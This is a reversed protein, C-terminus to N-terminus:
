TIRLTLDYDQAGELGERLMGVERVLSTRYVGLHSTYMFSMLTDPSWEPKFHPFHRNGGGEDIKDEDSYIFDLEPEENLKKAVEYLANPAITDDCDMFAVFEGEAVELASNTAKSIHGNETRYVIKIKDQNEYEKLVEKTEEWTSADDALCLQWNTYTQGTVSKICERLMGAKVNYVPVVVSILPNHELKTVKYCDKENKKIWKHYAMHPQEPRKFKIILLQRFLPLGGEKLVRVCTGANKIVRQFVNKKQESTNETNTQDNNGNM